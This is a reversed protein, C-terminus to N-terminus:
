QRDTLRLIDVRRIWSNMSSPYGAWKVFCWEEGERRQQRRIVKEVLYVDDDLIIPKDIFVAKLRKEM